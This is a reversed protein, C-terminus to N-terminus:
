ANSAERALAKLLRDLSALLPETLDAPLADRISDKPGYAARARLAVGRLDELSADRLLEPLPELFEQWRSLGRERAGAAAKETERAAALAAEDIAPREHRAPRAPPRVGERGSQWGSAGWSGRM